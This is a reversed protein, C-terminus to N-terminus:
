KFCSNRMFIKTEGLVQYGGDIFNVAEGDHTVFRPLGYITKKEQFTSVDILKRFEQLYISDSDNSYTEFQRILRGHHDGFIAM